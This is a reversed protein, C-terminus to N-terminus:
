AAPEGMQYQKGMLYVHVPGEIGRLNVTTRPVGPQATLLKLIDESVVFSNNLAKTASQLRAAINVPYGMVTLGNNVGLGINGCIVKGAHLGMGVDLRHNFYTQLYTENFTAVHDLIALGARVASQAAETIHGEFGFVAYLGDGATEIV